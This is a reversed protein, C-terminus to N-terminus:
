IEHHVREVAEPRGDRHLVVQAVDRVDDRAGFVTVELGDVADRELAAQRLSLHGLEGSIAAHPRHAHAVLGVLVELVVYVPAHYQSRRLREEILTEQM